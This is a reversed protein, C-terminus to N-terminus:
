IILLRRRDICSMRQEGTNGSSMGPGVVITDTGQLSRHSNYTAKITGSLLHYPAADKSTPTVPAPGLGDEFANSLTLTGSSPGDEDSITTGFANYTLNFKDALSKLIDANHTQTEGVSSYPQTLCIECIM